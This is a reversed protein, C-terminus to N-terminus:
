TGSILPLFITTIWHCWFYQIPTIRLSSFDQFTLRSNWIKLDLINWTWYPGTIFKGNQIHFTLFVQSFIADFNDSQDIQLLGLVFPQVYISPLITLKPLITRRVPNKGVNFNSLMSCSWILSVWFGSVKLFIYFSQIHFFM